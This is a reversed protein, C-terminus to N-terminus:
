SGVQAQRTFDMIWNSEWTRGGDVSFAQEWRCADHPIVTWIFRNFIHRGDFVEQSYFEGRPGEFRGVMPVDFRGSGPSAAWYISWEQSMANYLRVTVAEIRGSPADISFEDMNGFGSLIPRARCTSPFEEWESSGRLRTKLRRNRVSWSGFLFDFDARGDRPRDSTTM